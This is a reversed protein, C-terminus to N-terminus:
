RALFRKNEAREGYAKLATYSCELRLKQAGRSGYLTVTNDTLKEIMCGMMFKFDNPKIKGIKEGECLRLSDRVIADAIAFREAEVVKRALYVEMAFPGGEVCRTKGPIIDADRQEQTVGLSEAVADAMHSSYFVGDDIAKNIADKMVEHAPTMEADHEWRAYSEKINSPPIYM